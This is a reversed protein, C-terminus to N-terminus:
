FRALEAIEKFKKDLPPLDVSERYQNILDICSNMKQPSLIVCVQQGYETPFIMIYGDSRLEKIIKSFKGQHEPPYGKPLNNINTHKGHHKRGVKCFYGGLCLKNLIFGKIHHDKGIQPEKPETSLPQEM